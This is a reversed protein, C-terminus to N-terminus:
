TRAPEDAPTKGISDLRKQLSLRDLSALPLNTFLNIRNYLARYADAFQLGIEAESGMADAPDPIGWHATM